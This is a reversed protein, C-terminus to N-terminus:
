FDMRPLKHKKNIHKVFSKADSDTLFSLDREDPSGTVSLMQIFMDTEPLNPFGNEDESIDSASSLPFCSQSQFLLKRDKYYAYSEKMANLLESM